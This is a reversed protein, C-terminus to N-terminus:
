GAGQPRAIQALTTIEAKEVDTYPRGTLQNIPEPSPGSSPLGTTFRFKEIEQYIIDNTEDLTLKEKGWNWPLRSQKADEARKLAMEINMSITAYNTGLQEAVVKPTIKLADLRAKVYQENIDSKRTEIREKSEREKRALKAKQWSPFNELAAQAMNVDKSGYTLFTGIMYDSFEENSLAAGFRQEIAGMISKKDKGSMKNFANTAVKTEDILNKGAKNINNTVENRIKSQDESNTVGGAEIINNATQDALEKKNDKSFYDSMSEQINKRAGTIEALVGLKFMNKIQPIKALDAKRAWNFLQTGYKLTARPWSILAVAAPQGIDTLLERANTVQAEATMKDQDLTGTIGMGRRISWDLGANIADATSRYAGGVTGLTGEDWGKKYYSPVTNLLYDTGATIGSGVKEAGTALASGAALRADDLKGIGSAVGEAATALGSGAALRVDDLKGIGSAVGEAATASEDAIADIARGPLGAIGSLKAGARDFFGSSPDTAAEARDGYMVKALENKRVNREIVPSSRNSASLFPHESTTGRGVDLYRAVPPVTPDVTRDPQPFLQSRGQDAYIAQGKDTEGMIANIDLRPAPRM